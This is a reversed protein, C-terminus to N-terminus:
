QNLWLHLEKESLLITDAMKTMLEPEIKRLRGPMLCEGLNKDHYTRGNCPTCWSNDTDTMTHGLADAPVVKIDLPFLVATKKKAGCAWGLELHASTGCPQVLLCADAAMLANMDSAFGEKAVKHSLGKRYTEPNWEKWNKDIETWHFGNNGPAPNHFDYVEHGLARLMKVITPQWVNRWSSAVYINM